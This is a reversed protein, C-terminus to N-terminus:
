IGLKPKDSSHGILLLNLDKKGENKKTLKLKQVHYVWNRKKFVLLDDINACISEFGRFLDNMNHQFIDPSNAVGM